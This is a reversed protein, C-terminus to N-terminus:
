QLIEARNGYERMWEEHSQTTNPRAHFWHTLNFVWDVVDLVAAERSSSRPAPPRAPKRPEPFTLQYEECFSNMYLIGAVAYADDPDDVHKVSWKSLVALSAMAPTVIEECDVMRVCLGLDVRVHHQRVRFVNDRVHVVRCRERREEEDEDEDEEDVYGPHRELAAQIGAGYDAPSQPHRGVLEAVPVPSERRPQARRGGRRPPAVPASAGSNM